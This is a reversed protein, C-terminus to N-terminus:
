LLVTFSRTLPLFHLHIFAGKPFAVHQHWERGFYYPIFMAETDSAKLPISGLTPLAFSQLCLQSSLASSPQNMTASLAVSGRLSVGSREGPRKAITVTIDLQQASVEQMAPPLKVGRWRLTLTNNDASLEYSTNACYAGVCPNVRLGHPIAVTCDSVNLAWLANQTRKPPTATNMVFAQTYAGDSSSVSLNRLEFTRSDLELEFGKPGWLLSPAPPDMAAVSPGDDDDDADGGDADDTKVSLPPTVQQHAVQQGAATVFLFLQQKVRGGGGSATAPSSVASSGVTDVDIISLSSLLFAVMILPPADRM